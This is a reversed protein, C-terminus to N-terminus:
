HLLEVLGTEVDYVAGVVKLAGAQAKPALVPQSALIEAVSHEVNARVARDVLARGGDHGLHRLSPEIKRVIAGVHGGHEHKLAAAVAGCSRHGLVVILRVGLHEVAYELSGLVDDDVVNGAERVVFLDGVGQDFVIEPPVRSDACGLIAAAPHQDKSTQRVRKQSQDPHHPHGSAFHRNGELLRALVAADSERKSPQTSAGAEAALALLSCLLISSRARM